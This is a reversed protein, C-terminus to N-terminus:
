VTPAAGCSNEGEYCRGETVCPPGALEFVHPALPKVLRLMERALRRIEWQARVCLRLSFFHLLERANMTFVLRTTSANPLVFRADEKKIGLELLRSYTAQAQSVLDEFAARAEPTRKIEEPMVVELRDEFSVYRQSQQSFSAIRHRVLQHSATRSLGEVGFTFVAHELVSHHRSACIKTVMREITAEDLSDWIEQLSKGSYCVRAACAILREPDPTHALLKVRM